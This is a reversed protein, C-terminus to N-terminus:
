VQFLKYLKESSISTPLFHLFISFYNEKIKADSDDIKKKQKKLTLSQLCLFLSRLLLIIFIASLISIKKIHVLFLSIWTSNFPYAEFFNFIFIKQKAKKETTDTISIPVFLM